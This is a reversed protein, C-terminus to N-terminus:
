LVVCWFSPLVDHEKAASCFLNLLSSVLYMSMWTKLTISRYCILNEFQMCTRINECLMEMTQYVHRTRVVCICQFTELRGFLFIRFMWLKMFYPGQRSCMWIFAYMFLSFTRYYVGLYLCSACLQCVSIPWKQM